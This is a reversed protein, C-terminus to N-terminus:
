VQRSPFFLVNDINPLVTGLLTNKETSKRGASFDVEELPLLSVNRREVSMANIPHSYVVEVKDYKGSDYWKSIAIM